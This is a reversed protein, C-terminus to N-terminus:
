TVARRRTRLAVALGALALVTATTEALASTSKAPLAWTPEYLNPLPGLAGVEVYTYV